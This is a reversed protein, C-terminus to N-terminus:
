AKPKQLGKMYAAVTTHITSEVDFDGRLLCWSYIIGRFICLLDVVTGQLDLGAPLEGESVATELLQSLNQSFPRGTDLFFDADIDMQLRYITTAANLGFYNRAESGTHTIYELIKAVNSKGSLTKSIEEFRADIHYYVERIISDKAKFYYYYTGVSVNARQCLEAIKIEDAPKERILELYCSLIQRKTEEAQLQRSTKM